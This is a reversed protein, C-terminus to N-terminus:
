PWIGPIDIVAEPLRRLCLTGERLIAETALSTGNHVLIEITRAKPSVVWVEPFAIAARTRTQESALSPKEM